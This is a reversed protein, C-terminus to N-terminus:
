VKNIQKSEDINVSHTRFQIYAAANEKLKKSSSFWELSSAIINLFVVALAIQLVGWTQLSDTSDYSIM